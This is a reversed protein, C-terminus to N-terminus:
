TKPGAEIRSVIVLASSDASQSWAVAYRPVKQSLVWRRIQAVLDAQDVQCRQAIEERTFVM